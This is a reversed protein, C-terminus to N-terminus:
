SPGGPQWVMAWLAVLLLLHMAGTLPQVAKSGSRQARLLLFMVVAMLIWLTFAISVWTEKFAERNLAYTNMIGTFLLVVLAPAQVKTLAATLGQTAGEASRAVLPAAFFAGFAVIASIIHLFLWLEQM